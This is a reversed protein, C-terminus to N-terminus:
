KARWPMVRRRGSRARHVLVFVIAATALMLKGAATAVRQLGVETHRFTHRPELAACHVILVHLTDRGHLRGSRVEPAECPEIKRHTKVVRQVATMAVGAFEARRHM